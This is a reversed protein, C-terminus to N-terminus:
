VEKWYEDPTIVNEYYDGNSFEISGDDYVAIVDDYVVVVENSFKDCIAIKM